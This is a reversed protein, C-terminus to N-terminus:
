IKTFVLPAVLWIALLASFIGLVWGALIDWEDHYGLIIRSWSAAVTLGFMVLGLVPFYWFFVFSIASFSVAHGSPLANGQTQQPSLFLSFTTEFKLRQYPRPKKYLLLILPTFVLRALVFAVLAVLVVKWDGALLLYAGVLFVAAISYIGFFIWFRRYWKRDQLKKQWQLYRDQNM